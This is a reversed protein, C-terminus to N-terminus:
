LIRRKQGAQVVVERAGAEEAKVQSVVATEKLNFALIIRMM